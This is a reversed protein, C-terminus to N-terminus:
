VSLGAWSSDHLGIVSVPATVLRAVLGDTWGGIVGGLSVGRMVGNGESGNTNLGLCYSYAVGGFLRSTGCLAGDLGRGQGIPRLGRFGNLAGGQWAASGAGGEFIISGGVGLM